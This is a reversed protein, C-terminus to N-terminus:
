RKAWVAILYLVLWALMAVSLLVVSNTIVLLAATYTSLIILFLDSRKM